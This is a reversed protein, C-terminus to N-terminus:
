PTPSQTRCLGQPCQRRLRELGGGPPIRTFLSLPPSSAAASRPGLEVAPQDAWVSVPQVGEPTPPGM